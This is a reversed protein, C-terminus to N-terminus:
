RNTNVPENCNMLLFRNARHSERLLHASATQAGRCSTLSCFLWFREFSLHISLLTTTGASPLLIVRCFPM